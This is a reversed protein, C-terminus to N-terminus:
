ADGGQAPSTMCLPEPRPMGGLRGMLDDARRYAARVYKWAEHFDEVSAAHGGEPPFAHMWLVRAAAEAEAQVRELVFRQQLKHYEAVNHQKRARRGQAAHHRPYQAADMTVIFLAGAAKEPYDTGNLAEMACDRLRNLELRDKMTQDLAGIADGLHPAAAARVDDRTVLDAELHSDLLALAARVIAVHDGSAQAAKLADLERDPRNM